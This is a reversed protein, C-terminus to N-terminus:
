LKETVKSNNKYVRRAEYASLLCKLEKFTAKAVKWLQKATYTSVWFAEGGGYVGGTISRSISSARQM